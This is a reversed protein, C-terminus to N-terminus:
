ASAIRKWSLKKACGTSRSLSSRRLKSVSVCPQWTLKLLRSRSKSASCHSKKWSGCDTAHNQTLQRPLMALSGHDVKGFSLKVLTRVQLLAEAEKRKSAEADQVQRMKAEHEALAAALTAQNATERGELEVQLERERQAAEEQRQQEVEALRTKLAQMEQERQHLSVDSEHVRAAAQAKEAEAEVLQAKLAAQM